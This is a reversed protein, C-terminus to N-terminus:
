YQQEEEDEFDEDDSLGRVEVAEPPELRSIKLDAYCGPCYTISGVELDEDLEFQEGCVPCKVKKEGGM